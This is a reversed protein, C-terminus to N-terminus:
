IINKDDENIVFGLKEKIYEICDKITSNNFNYFYNKIIITKIENNEWDKKKINGKIIDDQCKYNKYYSHQYYKLNHEKTLIFKHFLDERNIMGYGKCLSTSCKFYYNKASGNVETFEWEENNIDFYYYHKNIKKELLFDYNRKQTKRKEKKGMFNQSKSLLEKEESNIINKNEKTMQLYNRKRKFKNNNNPNNINLNNIKNTINSNTSSISM